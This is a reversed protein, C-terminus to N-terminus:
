HWNSIQVDAPAPQGVGTEVYSKMSLLYTAWKTSCHGMFEVPERWGAHSFNVVAYDGERKLDFTISTGVWEEPGGIVRWAVRQNPVLEEVALQFGGIYEGTEGNTFDTKMTGGVQDGGTTDATWWAAVGAPTAIADYTKEMSSRVGVRHLIDFM